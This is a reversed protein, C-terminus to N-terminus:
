EEELVSRWKAATWNAVDEKKRHARSIQHDITKQGEPGTALIDDLHAQRVQGPRDIRDESQKRTFLSWDQSVYMARWAATFNKGFRGAQPQAPVLAPGAPATLPHLVRLVAERDKVAQSGQLIATVVKPFTGRVAVELREGEARFRCWCIIKANPDEAWTAALEELVKNLKEQGIEALRPEEGEPAVGGLYGSTIQSLRLSKVPAHMAMSPDGDLWTIMEDRMEKYMKWSAPTLPVERQGYAKPLKDRVDAQLRRLVFPATLRQIKEVDRFSLVQKNQYGGMVCHAARFHYFNKYGLIGKDLCAFQSYIELPNGPTGNLTTRRACTEALQFVARTQVARSNKIASSEDMVLWVRRGRLAKQLLALRLTQRILEYSCVLYNLRGKRWAPAPHRRDYPMVEAPVWNHTAIEGIEPDLWVNKVDAPCLILVTDIAEAEFLIGAADIVQKSKGVGMEDFLAFSPHAVLAMTGERQHPFPITKFRSPDYTM